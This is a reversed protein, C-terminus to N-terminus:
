QHQLLPHEYKADAWEPLKQGIGWTLRGALVQWSGGMQRDCFQELNWKILEYQSHLLEFRHGNPEYQSGYSFRNIARYRASFNTESLTLLDELFVWFINKFRQIWIMIFCHYDILVVNKEYFVFRCLYNKLNESKPIRYAQEYSMWKFIRLWLILLRCHDCWPFERWSTLAM